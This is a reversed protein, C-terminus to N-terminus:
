LDEGRGRAQEKEVHRTYDSKEAKRNFDELQAFNKRKAILKNLAPPYQGVCYWSGPADCIRNKPDAVWAKSEESVNLVKFIRMLGYKTTHVEKFLKPDLQVGPLLKHKVANYVFSERMMPTPEPYATYQSCTPDHAGCIDPFVSNGIRAFHASIRLDTERDGAWVLVYDALHKMINHSKKVPNSLIRGITAIHEHNWTNGDAVSTRRAIGTIQYGYDWWALVRSDAPTNADIWKYGQYYDDVIITEGNRLRAEYALGPGALSDAHQYCLSVFAKWPEQAERWAGAAVFLALALRILRDIIPLRTAAFASLGQVSRIEETYTVPCICRGLSRLISGMGGSRSPLDVAEDIPPVGCFFRKVQELCWDLAIGVPYGALISVIPGCIIILRSMKLSFHYAVAAFLVPFVKAPTRQHWCLFLGVFAFYRPTSLYMDYAKENAAQHEAVSDVLPNGTKKHKLFLGRIRSSWPAFYGFQMLVACVAAVAVGCSVFVAVRFFFFRWATMPRRKRYMDCLELVQFGLFVAMAPMQEISRFPMWGVVPVLTAGFSGLVYWVSYARHLGSNYKGLGVLVAAHLAILNNVFIYGGWTAVASVYALAALVAWPWSSPRRVARCWLWFCSCFAAMAVCENDFEGTMSRMLHAPIIAMVLAAACAAGSSESTEWTLLFIAVTAVSALWAPVMVCVDNVSMPGLSLKGHGPLMKLWEPGLLDKLYSPLELTTKPFLKLFRWIWVSLIQMGPYITTGIPRGIPYWSMYDYWRFFAHWGHKALYKTARQNFWPDFEHILFGYKQVSLLRIRYAWLCSGALLAVKLLGVLLDLALRLLRRPLGPQPKQVDNAEALHAAM